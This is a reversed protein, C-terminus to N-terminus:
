KFRGYHQKREWKQKRIITTGNDMTIMIKESPQLSDEMTNKYITKSDYYRHRMVTKSAPLDEEDDRPNLATHM